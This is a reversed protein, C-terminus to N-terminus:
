LTFNQVIEATKLLNQFYSQVLIIMIFNNAYKLLALELDQWFNSTQM